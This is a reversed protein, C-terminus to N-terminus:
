IDEISPVISESRNNRRLEPSDNGSEDGSYHPGEQDKTHFSQFNGAKQNKVLPPLIVDEKQILMAKGKKQKSTRKGSSSIM